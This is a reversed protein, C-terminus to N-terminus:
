MVGEVALVQVQEVKARRDKRVLTQIQSRLVVVVVVMTRWGLSYMRRLAGSWAALMPFRFPHQM